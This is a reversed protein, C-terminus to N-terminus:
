NESYPIAKDKEIPLYYNRFVEQMSKREKLIAEKSILKADIFGGKERFDNVDEVLNNYSDIKIKQFKKWSIELPKKRYHTELFYSTDYKEAVNSSKVLSYHFIYEEDYIEFILGSLGRFKYPGEQFPIEKNFWAIWNRGGFHTTAKQLLYNEVIKTEKELKWDMKDSSSILFYDYGNVFYSKNDFTNTKRTLLQDIESFAQLNKGTTIRISDIPLFEYDYFKVENKNIDLVMNFKEIDGRKNIKLEYFFRHTQSFSIGFIFLFFITTLEKM